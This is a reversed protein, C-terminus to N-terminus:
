YIIIFLFKLLIKAIAFMAITMKVMYYMIKAELKNIKRAKIFSNATYDINSYFYIFILFDLIYSM